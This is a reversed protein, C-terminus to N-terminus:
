GARNNKDKFQGPNKSTRSALLIQHRYQLIYLLEEPSSPTTMM